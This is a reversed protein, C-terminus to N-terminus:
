KLYKISRWGLRSLKQFYNLKIVKKYLLGKTNITAKNNLLILSQKNNPHINNKKM